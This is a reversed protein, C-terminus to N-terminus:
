EKPPEPLPMWHTVFDGVAEFEESYMNQEWWGEPIIYDDKEEDYEFDLEEWTFASDGVGMTGDEYMTTARIQKIEGNYMKRDACIFVREENEPLRESVPIWQSQLQKELAQLVLKFRPLDSEFADPNQEMHWINDKYIEVAKEIDNM